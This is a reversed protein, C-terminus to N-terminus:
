RSKTQASLIAGPDDRALKSLSREDLQHIVDNLKEHPPMGPAFSRGYTKRLASILSNGHRKLLERYKSHLRNRLGIPAM